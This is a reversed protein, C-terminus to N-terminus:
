LTGAGRARCPDKGGTCIPEAAGIRWAKIEIM